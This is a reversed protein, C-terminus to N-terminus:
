KIKTKPVVRWLFKCSLDSMKVVDTEDEIFAYSKDELYVSYLYLDSFDPKEYDSRYFIDGNKLESKKYPVLVCDVVCESYREQVRFFDENPNCYITQKKGFQLELHTGYKEIKINEPVDVFEPEDSLVEIKEGKFIKGDVRVRKM